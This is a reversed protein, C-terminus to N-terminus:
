TLTMPLLFYMIYPRVPCPLAVFSGQRDWLVFNLANLIAPIIPIRTHIQELPGTLGAKVIKM